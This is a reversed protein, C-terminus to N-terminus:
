TFRPVALVSGWPQQTSLGWRGVKLLFILTYKFVDVWNLSPDNKPTKITTLINRCCYCRCCNIIQLIIIWVLLFLFVAVTTWLIIPERNPNANAAKVGEAGGGIDSPLAQLVPLSLPRELAVDILYNVIDNANSNTKFTSNGTPKFLVNLLGM